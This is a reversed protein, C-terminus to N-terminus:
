PFISLADAVAQTMQGARKQSQQQGDMTSSSASGLVVDMMSPCCWCLLILHLIGCAIVGWLVMFTNFLLEINSLGAGPLLAQLAVSEHSEGCKRITTVLVSEKASANAQFFTYANIVGVCGIIFWTILSTKALFRLCNVCHYLPATSNFNLRRLQFCCKIATIFMVVLGGIGYITAWEAVSQCLELDEQVATSLLSVETSNLSQLAAYTTEGFDMFCLCLAVLMLCWAWGLVAWVKPMCGPQRYLNISTAFVGASHVMPPGKDDQSGEGSDLMPPIACEPDTNFRGEGGLFSDDPQVFDQDNFSKWSGGQLSPTAAPLPYLPRDLHLQIEPAAKPNVWGPEQNGTQFSDDYSYM